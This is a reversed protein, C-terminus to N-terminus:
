QLQVISSEITISSDDTGSVVCAAAPFVESVTDALAATFAM